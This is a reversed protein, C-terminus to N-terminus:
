CENSQGDLRIEPQCKPGSGLDPSTAWMKLGVRGSGVPFQTLGVRGALFGLKVGLSSFISFKGTKPKQM